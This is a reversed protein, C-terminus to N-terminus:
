ARIPANQLLAFRSRGHYTISFITPVLLSSSRVEVTDLAGLCARGPGLREKNRGTREVNHESASMAGSWRVKKVEPLCESRYTRPSSRKAVIM